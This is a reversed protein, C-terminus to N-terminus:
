TYYQPVAAYQVGPIHYTQYYGSYPDYQPFGPFGVFGKYSKGKGYSKSKGYSKGKRYSKGKGNSKGDTHGKGKGGEGKGDKGGKNDNASTADQSETGYTANETSPLNLLVSEDYHWLKARNGDPFILRINKWIKGGSETPLVSLKVDSLKVEFRLVNLIFWLASKFVEGWVAFAELYAGNSFDHLQVRSTSSLKLHPEKAMHLYMMVTDTDEDSFYASGYLLRESSENLSDYDFPSKQSRLRRVADDKVTRHFVYPRLFTLLLWISLGFIKQYGQIVEIMAKSLIKQTNVTTEWSTKGIQTTPCEICFTLIIQLLYFLTNQEESFTLEGLVFWLDTLSKQLGAYDTNVDMGTKAVSFKSVETEKFCEFWAETVEPPTMAPTTRAADNVVPDTVAADNVQEM